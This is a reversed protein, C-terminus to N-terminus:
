HNLRFIQAFSSSTLLWIFSFSNTWNSDKNKTQNSTFLCFWNANKVIKLFTKLRKLIFVWFSNRLQFSPHYTILMRDYDTIKWRLRIMSRLSDNVSSCYLSTLIDDGEILYHNINFSKMNFFIIIFITTFCCNKLGTMATLHTHTHTHALKGVNFFM